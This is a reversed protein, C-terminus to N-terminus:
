DFRVCTAMTNGGSSQCLTANAFKTLFTVLSILKSLLLTILLIEFSKSSFYFYVELAAICQRHHWAKLTYQAADYAKFFILSLSAYWGLQVLVSFYILIIDQTFDM